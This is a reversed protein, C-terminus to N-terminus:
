EDGNGEEEFLPQEEAPKAKAVRGAVVDELVSDWDEVTMPQEQRNPFHSDVWDAIEQQTYVEVGNDFRAQEVQARKNRVGISVGTQQPRPRPARQPAQVPREPPQPGDQQMEEAPTAAYGALTVVWAYKMRAAKAGAWTQAASMAARHKGTGQKGRCPFDDFGCAMIGTAIVEGNKVINM